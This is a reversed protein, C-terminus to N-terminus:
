APHDLSRFYRPEVYDWDQQTHLYVRSQGYLTQLTPPFAAAADLASFDGLHGALAKLALLAPDLTFLQGGACIVQAALMAQDPRLGALQRDRAYLLLERPSYGERLIAMDSHLRDMFPYYADQIDRPQQWIIADCLGVQEFNMRVAGQYHNAFFLVARHRLRNNEHHMGLFLSADVFPLLDTM